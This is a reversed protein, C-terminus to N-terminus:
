LSKTEFIKMMEKAKEFQKVAKLSQAYRYYYVAELDTKIAFLEDYWKAALVLDGAFFHGNGVKIIMDVTKYGKDMIREYTGLVDIKVHKEKPEILTPTAMFSDAMDINVAVPLTIQASTVPSLTNSKTELSNIAVVVRKSKGYKPTVIRVNNEGLDNTNVLSLKSVNYTTISSGMPKNIREEVHYSVVVLDNRPSADYIVKMNKANAPFRENSQAFCSLSFVSAIVIFLQTYNKM